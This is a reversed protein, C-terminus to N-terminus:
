LPPVDYEVRELSWRWGPTKHCLWNPCDGPELPNLQNKVEVGDSVSDGDTDPNNPDLGPIQSEQLNTLGDGDADLNADAPDNPNFGNATEFSDAMGDNDTDRRAVSFEIRPGVSQKGNVDVAWARVEYNGGNIGAGTFNRSSEFLTMRSPIVGAFNFYESSQYSESDANWYQGNSKDRISYGANAISDVAAVKIGIEVVANSTQSGHVPATIQAIPTDTCGLDDDIPTLPRTYTAFLSGGVTGARVNHSASGGDSWSEFVTALNNNCGLAIARVSHNFNAVTDLTFPVSRTIDDVVVTAVGPSASVQLGIKTPEIEVSRTTSLGLQDTVTLQIVYSTDGSFDHGTDGVHFDLSRGVANNVEPHEHNGHAFRVNWVYSNNNLPGDDTASGTLRITQGAIFTSGNAPSNITVVPAQGATIQIPSSTATQGGATVRLTASY